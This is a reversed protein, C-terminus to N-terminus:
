ELGRGPTDRGALWPVEGVCTCLRTGPPVVAEEPVLLEEKRVRNGPIYGPALAQIHVRVQNRAMHLDLFYCALHVQHDELGTGQIDVLGAQIGEVPNSRVKEWCSPQLFLFGEELLEQDGWVGPAELRPCSSPLVLSQVLHAESFAQDM